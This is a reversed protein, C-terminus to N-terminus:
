GDFYLQCVVLSEGEISTITSWMWRPQDSEDANGWERSISFDGPFWPLPRLRAQKLQKHVPRFLKYCYAGYAMGGARNFADLLKDSNKQFLTQWNLAIHSEIYQALQVVCCRKAIAFIDSDKNESLFEQLSEMSLSRLPQTAEYQPADRICSSQLFNVEIPCCLM